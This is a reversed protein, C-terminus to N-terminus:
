DGVSVVSDTGRFTGLICFANGRQVAISLRQRLFATSRPEHTAEAIRRGIEKVLDIAQEGWTGSTEIAVPVFDVGTTIDAYKQSKQVEAAAAASGARTSSAQVHSVAFTDPCTADWALCRGRSWPVQTVGDPRKGSGTCLSHPERTALSGSKIFARRLM